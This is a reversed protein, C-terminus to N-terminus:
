PPPSTPCVFFCASLDGRCCLLDEDCLDFGCCPEGLGGCADPGSDLGGDQLGGDPVADSGDISPLEPSYCGLAALLAFLPAGRV